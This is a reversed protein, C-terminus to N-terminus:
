RSRSCRGYATKWDGSSGLYLGRHPTLYTIGKREPFKGRFPEVDYLAVENSVLHDCAVTAEIPPEEVSSWGTYLRSVERQILVPWTPIQELVAAKEIQRKLGGESLWAELVADVVDPITKPGRIAYADSLVTVIPVGLVILARCIEHDLGARIPISRYRARIESVKLTFDEEGQFAVEVLAVVGSTQLLVEHAEETLVVGAPVPLAARALDDIAKVRGRRYLSGGLWRDLLDRYGEFYSAEAAKM